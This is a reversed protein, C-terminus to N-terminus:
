ELPTTWSRMEVLREFEPLPVPPSYLYGQFAECGLQLLHAQQLETEVGEAIVSLGLAQSLSVIVRAISSSNEDILIDRVFSIDIKLRDLPFRKLYTLSSYGTGFDDVSFRIGSAKLVCMRAIVEEVNDLLTSETIELELNNAPAGTQELIELLRDVFDPQRLQLASINVALKLYSTREDKAWRALQQCATELVWGGLPLILGSEEAQQIFVGPPILGKQPHQWRILAEAGFILGKEIQPQYYLVFEKNLIGKRLDTELALRAHLFNLLESSFFHIASSSTGSLRNCAIMAQQLVIDRDVRGGTFIAIGIRCRSVCEREEIPIPQAVRALLSEAVVHAQRQAEERDESLGNLLIAFQDSGMHAISENEALQGALRLSIERLYKDGAHHGLSENLTKFDDMNLFLLARYQKESRGAGGSIREMMLRRNGLGTVMDTMAWHRLTQEHRRLSVIGVALFLVLLTLAVTWGAQKRTWWPARQVVVIDDANRLLLQFGKLQHAEDVDAVSIGTVELRSGAALPKRGAAPDLWHATFNRIGDRLFLIDEREGPLEEILQARIRVLQSDFPAVQILNPRKLGSSKSGGPDAVMAAATTAVPSLSVGTSIVRYRADELVPSYRGPSPFGVVDVVDGLALDKDPAAQVNLGIRGNQIYIGRGSQSWTVTGRVHVPHVLALYGGYRMLGDLPTLPLTFLDDPLNEEIEVDALNNLYFILGVYQRRDNFVAGCVAHMRVTKGRLREWGAADFDHVLVSAQYGGLDM